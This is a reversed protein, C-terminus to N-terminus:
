VTGRRHSMVDPNVLNPPREGNLATLMNEVALSAMRARTALSGSAIHPTVILNPLTLLPDEMAIPEVETVDLAAAALQGSTLADYLARGDVVQGRAANILIAGRKMKALAAADILHHTEPTLLVHLTVFDSRALLEDLSVFQLGYEREAQENRRVDYYLITMGFGIARRAVQVGIQGLGAIGLTAGYIDAGLLLSPDWTQWRGERTFRDGEVVRRAAAMLLAWTFDATTETLVGPTNTIIVGRETAAPVDINDFGVAVNSVVRVSPAQDLLPRDVRDTVLTILGDSRRAEALLVERPPPLEGQWLEVEVSRRLVDVADGPLRRAVFVRSM